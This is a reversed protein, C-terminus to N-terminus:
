VLGIRSRLQEVHERTVEELRVLLPAEGEGERGEAAGFELEMLCCLDVLRRRCQELAQTITKACAPDRKLVKMKDVSFGMLQTLVHDSFTAETFATGDTIRARVSWAGRRTQLPGLLTVVFGKVTIQIRQAPRHTSLVRSLYTFPPSHLGVSSRSSSSNGIGSSSSSISSSTFDSYSTEGTIVVLKMLRCGSKHLRVTENRVYLRLHPSWAEASKCLTLPPLIVSAVHMICACSWPGANHLDTTTHQINPAQKDRERGTTTHIKRRTKWNERGCKSDVHTQSSYIDVHHHAVENLTGCSPAQKERLTKGAPEPELETDWEDMAWDHELAASPDEAVVPQQQQQQRQQQYQQQYQQQHLQQRQQRQQPPSPQPPAPSNGAMGQLNLDNDDPLDDVPFDDSFDDPFDADSAGASPPVRRLALSNRTQARSHPTVDGRSPDRQGPPVCMLRALLRQPENEQALAEVEGGLLSVHASELLLVGLRCPVRGSVLLKTGPPLLPHLTPIPRYEMAQIEQVGDTLQLLLMRGAKVEWPQQPRPAATVQENSTDRGRLKQLQAYMPQSVDVLSDMQLAYYGGLTTTLVEGMGTPLVPLAMDRLDTLLWQEFVQRNVESPSLTRGANDQALWDLCAALWEAPVTVHWTSALWRRVREASMAM